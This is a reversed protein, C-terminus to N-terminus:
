LLKMYVRDTELYGRGELFRGRDLTLKTTTIIRQAGRERLVQETYDFLRWAVRPRSRYVPDIYYLDTFAHLTSAYHLHPKVLCLFYGVLRGQERVTVLSLGDAAEYSLYEDIQPNMPVHHRHVGVEEHHAKLLPLAEDFADAFRELQYTIM